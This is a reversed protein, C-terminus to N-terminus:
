MSNENKRDDFDRVSLSVTHNGRDSVQRWASISMSGSNQMKNIVGKFDPDNYQVKQTVEKLTGIAHYIEVIPQNDKNLRKVGIIRNNDGNINLKGQVSIEWNQDNNFLRGRNTEDYVKKEYDM